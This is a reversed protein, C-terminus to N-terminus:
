GLRRRMASMLIDQVERKSEVREIVDEDMTGRAIINYIFMPRDHGAQLQRVPGIREIIQQREELNWWHSFFVLINGGDQLNLGHGASQPHAFLVPIKGMNWDKITDPNADLQRGKPFAHQLRALDHKFHYAVLVPMGAAEEIIEELAQLKEDHTEKWNKEEDVYIAGNAMQLCKITRSAANFAEVGHSDIETFMEKEMATYQQRAKIPLDVYVDDIIPANLDFYDKADISLFVDKIANQIEDQAHPLAQLSFGDYSKRFWRDTFASFTKGLRQGKDVFWMQGWLDILGNPAPTGTLGWFRKTVSHAVKALAQARKGGQRLRFSKLRTSEDAVITKFPFKSGMKDVLWVINEYNMTFIQADKRLARSRDDESGVIPVVDIGATHEWKLVEDVWTSTAVRKPALILVPPGEGMMQLSQIADITSITKGLGMGAGLICRDMDLLHKIAIPQYPRPEFPRRKFKPALEILKIVPKKVIRSRGKEDKFAIKNHLM